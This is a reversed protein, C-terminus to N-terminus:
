PPPPLLNKRAMISFTRDILPNLCEDNLRELVPGLMLLKEEKMEIVAEVPMSRTNINQLMMFLDVFYASNIIQRT